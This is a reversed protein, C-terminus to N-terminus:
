LRRTPQGITSDKRRGDDGGESYSIATRFMAAASREATWHAVVPSGGTPVSTATAAASVVLNFPTIECGFSENGGSRPQSRAWSLCLLCPSSTTASGLSPNPGAM